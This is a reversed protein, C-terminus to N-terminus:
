YLVILDKGCTHFQTQKIIRFDSSLVDEEILSKNKLKGLLEEIQEQITAQSLFTLIVKEKGDSGPAQIRCETGTAHGSSSYLLEEEFLANILMSKGASYAGAFM